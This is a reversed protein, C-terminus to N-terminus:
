VLEIDMTTLESTRADLADYEPRHTQLFQQWAEVGSFRDVTLYRGAHEVDRYVGTGLYGISTGFLQAWEGESGYVREFEAEAGLRVEYQWVRVFM